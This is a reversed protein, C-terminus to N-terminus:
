WVVIDYKRFGYKGCIEVRMKLSVIFGEKILFDRVRAGFNCLREIGLHAIQYEKRRIEEREDMLEDFGLDKMSIYEENWADFSLVTVQRDGKKAAERIIDPLSNFLQEQEQKKADVLKQREAEKTKEFDVSLSLCEQKLNKNDTDIKRKKM